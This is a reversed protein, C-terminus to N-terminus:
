YQNGKYNKARLQAWRICSLHRPSGGGPTGGFHELGGTYLARNQSGKLISKQDGKTAANPRLVALRIALVVCNQPGFIIKGVTLQVGTWVPVGNESNQSTMLNCQKSCKELLM